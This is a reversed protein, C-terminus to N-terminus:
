LRMSTVRIYRVRTGISADPTRATGSEILDMIWCIIIATCPDSHRIQDKLQLLLGLWVDFNEQDSKHSDVSILKLALKLLADNEQSATASTAAEEFAAMQLELEESIQAVASALVKQFEARGITERTVAWMPRLGSVHAGMPGTLNRVAWICMDIELEEIAVDAHVEAYCDLDALLAKLQGIPNAANAQPSHSLATLPSIVQREIRGCDEVVWEIHPKGQHRYVDSKCALAIQSPRVMDLGILRAPYVGQAKHNLKATAKRFNRFRRERAKAEHSFRYHVINAEDTYTFLVAKRLNSELSM